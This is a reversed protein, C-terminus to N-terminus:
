QVLEKLSAFNEKEVIIKVADQRLGECHRDEKEIDDDSSNPNLINPFYEDFLYKYKYILKDPEIFYFVEELKDIKDASMAWFGAGYKRHHHIKNRIITSIWLKDKESFLSKNLNRFKHIAVSYKTDNFKDINEFVEKWKNIDTKVNELILRNVNDSYNYYDSKTITKPLVENWINYKPTNIESATSHSNPLINMLLKWAIEPEKKLLIHEIIEIKENHTLSSYNVWGLFIDQLSNLPQNGMNSQIELQSLKALILVVRTVYESNWSVRELAWLLDCHFCAGMTIDGSEFLKELNSDKKELAKEFATLFSNPSAEALLLLQQGYSYWTEVNLNQNYLSELWRSIKNKLESEGFVSMLCLSDALSERIAGSYNLHKDWAVWREQANVEFKPNIESFIDLSVSELRNMQSIAIKNAILDWLNIKSIVQWINGVLRIPTEKETKLQHLQKEFIEYELNSLRELIKIDYQNDRNWSSIFFITSLIDLSYKDIWDPKKKNDIPQLLPHKVIAHLFGKTDEILEWTKDRETGMTELVERKDEKRIKSLQIEINSGDTISSSVGVEIVFHGKEITHGINNPTFNQPILILSNKSEILNDWENQSSVILTRPLFKEEGKITSVAFIFSEEESQSIIITKSPTNNLVSIFKEKEEDRSVLVLDSSLKIRTQSSWRDLAQEIDLANEPRKGILKAFWLQVSPALSLWTELDDSNIGRVKKWKNELSKETEFESKKAWTQTTAFIYSVTNDAGADTRKEYDDKVKTNISKNTGFEWFSKGNPIFENGKEVELVGDWGGILISDGSPFHIYTADVTALILKRILEPLVEQAARTHSLSWQNIENATIHWSM